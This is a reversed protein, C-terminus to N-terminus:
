TRSFRSLPAFIPSVVQQAQLSLFDASSKNVESLSIGTQYALLDVLVKEGIWDHDNDPPAPQTGSWVALGEDLREMGFLRAVTAIEPDLVPGKDSVIGDQATGIRLRGLEGNEYIAFAYFDAAEHLAFVAHFGRSIAPTSLWTELRDWDFLWHHGAHTVAYPKDPDLAAMVSITAEGLAADAGYVQRVLAELDFRYSPTVLAALRM